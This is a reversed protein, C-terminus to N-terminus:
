RLVLLGTYGTFRWLWELDLFLIGTHYLAWRIKHIKNVCFEPSLQADAKNNSAFFNIVCQAQVKAVPSARHFSNYEIWIAVRNRVTHRMELRRKQTPSTMRPAVGSRTQSNSISMSRLKLSWGLREDNEREKDVDKEGQEM